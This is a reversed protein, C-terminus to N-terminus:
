VRAPMALRSRSKRAPLTCINVGGARGPGFLAGALSRARARTTCSRWSPRDTWSILERSRASAVGSLRVPTPCIRASSPKPRSTRPGSGWAPALGPVAPRSVCRGRAETMSKAANGARASVLRAPSSSTTGSRTARSRGAQHGPGAVGAGRRDGHDAAIRDRSASFSVAM